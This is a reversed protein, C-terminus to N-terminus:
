LKTVVKHLYRFGEGFGRQRALADAFIQVPIVDLLPSLFEHVTNPRAAAEDVSLTEGNVVVLVRAGYGELERAMAVASDATRDGAAFVVVGLEADASEVFGHHFAGISGNLAAVKAWEGVMMAAHRATAAHPGHGLFALTKAGSLVNLWRAAITDSQSLLREVADAARSLEYGQEYSFNVAWHQVLMWVVALSNVYTKSAILTENGALLPLTVHAAKALPSDSDNTVAILRPTQPLRKLQDLIPAVEASRGSQSIYILANSRWLLTDSYNLLDTAEAALARVGVQQAALAAVWAVHYSAGMGTLVPNEAFGAAAIKKGGEQDMYYPILRRLAAPQERIETQYISM